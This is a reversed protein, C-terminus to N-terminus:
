DVPDFFPEFLPKLTRAGSLSLHHEDYYFVTREKYFYCKEGDCLTRHPQLRHINASEAVSDLFALAAGFNHEFEGLPQTKEVPTEGSLIARSLELPVHEGLEPVPYILVIKKEAAELREITRRLAAEFGPNEGTVKLYAAFRGSLFVTRIDSSSLIRRM